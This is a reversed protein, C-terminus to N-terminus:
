VLAAECFVHFYPITDFQESINNSVKQKADFFHKKKGEHSDMM